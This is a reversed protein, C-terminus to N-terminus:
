FKYCVGLGPMGPPATLGVKNTRDILRGAKAVHSISEWIFITGVLSIITGAGIVAANVNKEGNSNYDNSAVFAAATVGFGIIELVAGTYWHNTFTVLEHGATGGPFLETEEKDTHVLIQNELIKMKKLTTIGVQNIRQRSVMRTLTSFGHGTQIEVYNGTVNLVKCVLTRGNTLILTDTNNETEQALVPLAVMLLFTFTIKRLLIM